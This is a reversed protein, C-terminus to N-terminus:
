NLLNQRNKYNYIFKIYLFNIKCFLFNIYFNLNKKPENLEGFFKTDSKLFFKKFFAISIGWKLLFIKGGRSGSETKISPHNKYKRTVISGFHYVKFNNIGKFIRIGHKWLKMNLDPDSGTGPFYEESFGGVKKWIDKHILHPAWTSGQFDYFNFKKYEKLFKEENFNDITEGCNFNIQGNHMMTGSLYFNKHKILEVEKYLIVDWEPCFYFDDHAYLIYNNSSKEAALNMGECIGANYKTHTFIINQNKLYQITGDNGINVHPIIEHNFKSNEKISKICLKLYKLNNLTPIIISFM